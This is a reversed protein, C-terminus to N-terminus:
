AAEAVPQEVSKAHLKKQEGIWRHVDEARWAVVRESFKLPAPFRGAKIEELLKTRRFPVHPLIITLRLYGTNPLTNAHV